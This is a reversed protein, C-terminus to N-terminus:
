WGVRECLLDSTYLFVGVCVVADGREFNCISDWWAQLKLDRYVPKVGYIPGGYFGPQEPNTMGLQTALRVRVEGVEADMVGSPHPYWMPLVRAILGMMKRGAVWMRLSQTRLALYRPSREKRAQAVVRRAIGRGQYDQHIQIGNLYLVDGFMKFIAFGIERGNDRISYVLEGDHLHDAVDKRLNDSVPRVFGSSTIVTAANLDPMRSVVVISM